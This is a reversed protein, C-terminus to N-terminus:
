AQRYSGLVKLRAVTGEISQVAEHIADDHIHGQFDIYFLYDGLAKRTPRSEIKTLNIDRSSFEALLEHLAGRDHRRDGSWSRKRHWSLHWGAM